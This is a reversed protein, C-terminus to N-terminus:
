KEKEIIKINEKSINDIIYGCELYNPDQYMDIDLNKMNIKYIIWKSNIMAKSVYYMKMKPILKYCDDIKKCLYIRDLHKSLKSKSKPILGKKLISKEFEQISLHYLTDPKNILIDLKSEYIINIELLYKINDKIYDEDYALINSKESLNKLRMESPFWGHRDIFLSDMYDLLTKINLIYNSNILTLIIKNYQKNINFNIKMLSLERNINNITLDIDHSKLTENLIFQSYTKVSNNM